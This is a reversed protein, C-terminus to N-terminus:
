PLNEPVAMKWLCLYKGTIRTARLMVSLEESTKKMESETTFNNHVLLANKEKPIVQLLYDISRNGTPHFVEASNLKFFDDILM